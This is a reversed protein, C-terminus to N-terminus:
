AAVEPRGRMWRKWSAEVDDGITAALKAFGEPSPQRGREWAQLTTISVGITVAARTVTVGHDRRWRRLPCRDVWKDWATDPM